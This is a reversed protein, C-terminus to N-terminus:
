DTTAMIREAYSMIEEVSVRLCGRIRNARLDGEDILRYVTRVSVAFYEAVEEVRYYRKHPYDTM